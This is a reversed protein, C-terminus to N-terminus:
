IGAAALLTYFSDSFIYSNMFNKTYDKHQLIVLKFFIVTEHNSLVSWIYYFVPSFYHLGSNRLKSKELLVNKDLNLVVTNM